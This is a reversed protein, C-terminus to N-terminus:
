LKTKLLKISICLSNGSEDHLNGCTFMNPPYISSTCYFWISRLKSISKTTSLNVRYKFPSRYFIKIDYLQSIFNQFKNVLNYVYIYRLEVAKAIRAPILLKLNFVSNQIVNDFSTLPSCVNCFKKLACDFLQQVDAMPYDLHSEALLVFEFCVNLQAMVLLKNRCCFRIQM